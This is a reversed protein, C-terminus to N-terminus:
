SRPVAPRHFVPADDGTPIVLALVERDPVRGLGGNGDAVAQGGHQPKRLVLHPYDGGENAAAEAGLDHHEVPPPRAEGPSCHLKATRELPDLIPLLVEVGRGLFPSLYVVGSDGEFVIACNQAHLVYEEM